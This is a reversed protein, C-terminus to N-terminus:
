PGIQLQNNNIKMEFPAGETYIKKAAPEIVLQNGSAGEEGLYIKKDQISVEGDSNGIYIEDDELWVWADNDRKKAKNVVAKAVMAGATAIVGLGAIAATGVAWGRTHDYESGPDGSDGSQGAQAMGAILTGTSAVAATVAGGLALWRLFETAKTSSKTRITVRTASKIDKTKGTWDFDWGDTVGFRVGAEYSMKAAITVDMALAMNVGISGALSVGTQLGMFGSFTFGGFFSESDGYFYSDSKNIGWETKRWHDSSSPDEEEEWGNWKVPRFWLGYAPEADFVGLGGGSISFRNSGGIKVERSKDTIELRYGTTYSYIGHRKEDTLGDGEQELNNPDDATDPIAGLRLYSYDDDSDSPYYDPTEIKLYKGAPLTVASSGEGYTQAASDDNALETDHVVVTRSRTDSRGSGTVSLSITYSGSQNYVPSAPNQSTSTQGNGFDWSWTDAGVSSETLAVTLPFDGEAPDLSFNAVPDVDVNTTEAPFRYNNGPSEGASEMLLQVTYRGPGAYTHTAVRTVGTSGDGFDWSWSILSVNGVGPRNATEPATFTVTAGASVPSNPDITITPM